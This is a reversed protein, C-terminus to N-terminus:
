PERTGRHGSRSLPPSGHEPPSPLAAHGRADEDARQTLDGSLVLVNVHDCELDSAEALQGYWVDAQALQTFHLDSLHLVNVRSGGAPPRDVPRAPLVRPQERRRHARRPARDAHHLQAVVYPPPLVRAASGRREADGREQQLLPSEQAHPYDEFCKSLYSSKLLALAERVIADTFRYRVDDLAVHGEESQALLWLLALGAGRPPVKEDHCAFSRLDGFYKSDLNKVVTDVVDRFGVDISTLTAATELIRPKPGSRLLAVACHRLERGLRHHARRERRFLVNAAEEGKRILEAVKEDPQRGMAIVHFRGSVDSLASVLSDGVPDIGIVTIKAERPVRDAIIKMAVAIRAQRPRNLHHFDDVVLHGRFGDRLRADLTDRDAEVPGLLWEQPVESFDRLARRVITTKGVGSPGEVVLDGGM